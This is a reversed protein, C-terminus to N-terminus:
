WYRGQKGRQGCFVFDWISSPDPQPEERVQQAYRLMEENYRDWLKKIEDRKLLGGAELKDEFSKIPDQEATVFNAGSASSHGYLRTVQAEMLVPKREVRIYDMAAKLQLYAEEPDLGNIVMTKMGFAKGRDAICRDGHQGEAATSIGWHNNTVVILIPLPNAPRSSWVLCTAFDGEATGADGGTVVTIGDGGARKNAMATGPAMSYQVEIPSSIPCVNWKKISQHNIFNRGGSYPDTSANKMQRISDLPDAGLALLVAGSRYHGHFYDYQPGSGKKLLLGLPVNFAEEGPGGIWFFGDNQKYMKILREELVRSRVMTDHMKLLLEPALRFGAKGNNVLRPSATSPTRTTM